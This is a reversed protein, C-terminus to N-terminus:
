RFTKVLREGATEPKPKYQAVWAALDPGALRPAALVYGQVMASGTSEALSIEWLAELGELVCQIGDAHFREILVRLTGVGADTGMLRKVLAGDFKVIDPALARVRQMRSAHAGFDDVAVLYGRARLEYVFRVLADKDATEAETIECVVDAPSIGTARLEAGLDRLDAEFRSPDEAARPDFNLFLRRQDSPLSRANRVHLARLQPEIARFAVPDLTAFYADTLVPVDNRTVRLLAECAIPVLRGKDFRFIPQFATQLVFDDHRAVFTGNDRQEIQLPPMQAL